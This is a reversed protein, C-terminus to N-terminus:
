KYETPTQFVALFFDRVVRSLIEEYGEYFHGTDLSLLQKEGQASNYLEEIDATVLDDHLGYIMLKKCKSNLNIRLHEIEKLPSILVLGKLDPFRTAAQSAVLAGYSYGLMGISTMTKSLYELCWVADEVEEIGGTYISYDISVSSLASCALQEAIAVLRSDERSGGYKPHPPCLLVGQKYQGYLTAYIVHDGRQFSLGQGM